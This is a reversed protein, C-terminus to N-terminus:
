PFRRPASGDPVLRGFAGRHRAILRYVRDLAFSPVRGLLRGIPRTLRMSELVDPAGTGYGALSGDSHVLRWTALRENEGLADLLPTAAENQLPLFALERRRDLRVVCRAVFRCLRCEGDYLLVPRRVRAM